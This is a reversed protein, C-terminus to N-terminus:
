GFPAAGPEPRRRSEPFTARKESRGSPNRGWSARGAGRCVEGGERLAVRPAGGALPSEAPSPTQVSTPLVRPSCLDNQRKPRLRGSPVLCTQSAAPACGLSGSPEVGLAGSRGGRSARASGQPPGRRRPARRRGGSVPELLPPYPSGPGWCGPDALPGGPLRDSALLPSLNQFPPCRRPSGLWSERAGTDPLIRSSRFSGFFRRYIKASRAPPQHLALGLLCYACPLLIEKKKLLLPAGTIEPVQSACLQFRAVLGAGEGGSVGMVRM